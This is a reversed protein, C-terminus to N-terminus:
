DSLALLKNKISEKNDDKFDLLLPATKKKKESQFKKLKHPDTTNNSGKHNQEEKM